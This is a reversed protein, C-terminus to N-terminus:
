DETPTTRLGDWGCWDSRNFDEPHRIVHRSREAWTRLWPDENREALLVAQALREDGHPTHGVLCYLSGLAFRRKPCSPDAVLDMLTSTLEPEAVIVQFDEMPESADSYAWVALEIATPNVIDVFFNEAVALDHWSRSGGVHGKGSGPRHRV